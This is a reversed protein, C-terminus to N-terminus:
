AIGVVALAAKTREVEERVEVLKLRVAELRQIADSTDLDFNFVIPERVAPRFPPPAPPRGVIHTPYPNQGGKRVYGERLPETM